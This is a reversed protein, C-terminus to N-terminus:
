EVLVVRESLFFLPFISNLNLRNSEISLTESVDNKRVCESEYFEIVDIGEILWSIITSDIILRLSLPSMASHCCRKSHSSRAVTLLFFGKPGEM